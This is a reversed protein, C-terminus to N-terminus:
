LHQIVLILNWWSIFLILYNKSLTRQNYLEMLSAKKIKKGEVNVNYLSELVNIYCILIKALIDLWIYNHTQTLPTTTKKKIFFMYKKSEPPTIYTKFYNYRQFFAM